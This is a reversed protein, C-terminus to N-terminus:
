KEYVAGRSASTVLKAYRRLFPSKVEKVVPTFTKKRRELEQDDVQLNISRAPRIDIEIKDGDQILGCPGGAAAEPHFM